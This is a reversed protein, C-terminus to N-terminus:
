SLTNISLVVSLLTSLIQIYTYPIYLLCDLALVIPITPLKELFIQSFLFTINNMLTPLYPQYETRSSQFM